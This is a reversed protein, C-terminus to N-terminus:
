LPISREGRIEFTQNISDNFEKMKEEIEEPSYVKLTVYCGCDGSAMKEGCMPCNGDLVDEFHQFCAM